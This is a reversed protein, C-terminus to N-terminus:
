KSTGHQFLITPDLHDQWSHDIRQRESKFEYAIISPLKWAPDFRLAQDEPIQRVLFDNFLYWDSNPRTERM